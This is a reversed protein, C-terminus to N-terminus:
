SKWFLSKEANLVCIPREFGVTVRTHAPAPAPQPYSVDFEISILRSTSYRCPVTGLAFRTEMMACDAAKVSKWVAYLVTTVRWSPLATEVLQPAHSFFMADLWRVASSLMKALPLARPWVQNEAEPSLPLLSQPM